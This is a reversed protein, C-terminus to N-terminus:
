NALARVKCLVQIYPMLFFFFPPSHGNHYFTRGTSVYLLTAVRLSYIMWLILNIGHFGLKYVINTAMAM